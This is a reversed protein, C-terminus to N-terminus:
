ISASIASNGPFVEVALPGCSQEITLFSCRKAQELSLERERPLTPASIAISEEKGPVMEVALLGCCQEM